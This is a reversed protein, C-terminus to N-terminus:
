VKWPDQINVVRAVKPALRLNTVNGTTIGAMRLVMM